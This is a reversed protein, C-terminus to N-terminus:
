RSTELGRTAFRHQQPQIRDKGARKAERMLVTTGQAGIVDPLGALSGGNNERLADILDKIPGICEVCLAMEDLLVLGGWMETAVAWDAGDEILERAIAVGIPIAEGDYDVLAEFQDPTVPADTWREGPHLRYIKRYGAAYPAQAWARRLLPVDRDGFYITEM